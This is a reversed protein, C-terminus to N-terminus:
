VHLFFPLLAYIITIGQYHFQQLNEFDKTPITENELTFIHQLKFPPIWQGSYLSWARMEFGMNGPLVNEGIGEAELMVLVIVMEGSTEPEKQGSLKGTSKPPVSPAALHYTM